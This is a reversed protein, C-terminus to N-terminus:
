ADDPRTPRSNPRGGRGPFITRPPAKDHQSPSIAQDLRLEPPAIGGGLDFESVIRTTVQFIRWPVSCPAGQVRNSQVTRLSARRDVRSPARGSIRQTCSARNSCT